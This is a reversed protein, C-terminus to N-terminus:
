CELRLHTANWVGSTLTVGDLNEFTIAFPNGTIEGFVADWLTQVKSTNQTVAANIELVTDNADTALALAQEAIAYARNATDEALLVKQMYAEFDAKTAYAIKALNATINTATGIITVVDIVKEILTSGGAPLIREATDGCNGYCYLIEGMDPDEAYLGIERYYFESAIMSNDFVGGVTVTGNANIVLKSIELEIRPKIVSTMTRLNQSAALKGDGLVIRTYRIQRGGIGKALLGLGANTIDNNVFSAM